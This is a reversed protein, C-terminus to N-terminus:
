EGPVAGRAVKVERIPWVPQGTARGCVQFFRQNLPLGVVTGPKGALTVDMPLASSNDLARIEHHILQCHWRREATQLDVVGGDAGCTQHREMVAKAAGADFQGRADCPTVTAM